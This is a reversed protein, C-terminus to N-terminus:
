ALSLSHMVLTAVNLLVGVPVIGEATANVLPSARASRTPEPVNGALLMQWHRIWLCPFLPVFM